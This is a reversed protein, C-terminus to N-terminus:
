HEPNEVANVAASAISYFNGWEELKDTVSKISVHAASLESKCETAKDLASHLDLSATGGSLGDLNFFTVSQEFFSSSELAAKSAPNIDKRKLLAAFFCSTATTERRAMDLANEAVAKASTVMLSKPNAMLSKVCIEYSHIESQACVKSVLETPITAETQSPFHLFLFLTIAAFFL